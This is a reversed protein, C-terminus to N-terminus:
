VLCCLSGKRTEAKKAPLLWIAEFPRLKLCTYVFRPTRPFMQSNSGQSLPHPSMHTPGDTLLCHLIM